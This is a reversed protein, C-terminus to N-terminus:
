ACAKHWEGEFELNLKYLEHDLKNITNIASMLDAEGTKAELYLGRLYRDNVMPIKDTKEWIAVAQSTLGVIEALSEQSLGLEKRLFRFEAGTLVSPKGAIAKGIVDHLGKVDTIAVSEGYATEKVVFGNSLWVNPLGSEVYHYM